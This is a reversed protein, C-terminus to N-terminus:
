PRVGRSTKRAAIFIATLQRAEDRLSILRKPPVLALEAITDLWGQTEDIEECVICIKAIFEKKSRALCAARYNAAVSSAARALQPGITNGARTKPLADALRLVRLAFAKTRQKLDREGSQWM